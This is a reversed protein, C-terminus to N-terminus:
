QPTLNLIEDLSYLTSKMSNWYQRSFKKLLKIYNIIDKYISSVVWM